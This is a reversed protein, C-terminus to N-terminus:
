SHNGCRIPLQDRVSGEALNAPNTVVLMRRAEGLLSKIPTTTWVRQYSQADSLRRIVAGNISGALNNPVGEM